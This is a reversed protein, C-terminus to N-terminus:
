ALAGPTDDLPPLDTVFEERLLGYVLDDHHTGNTYIMRRLRGELQFGLREHFRQSPRNFGYVRVTVKQYDLEQFFYRLVLQVAERAYGHRHHEAAIVLGYMFTGHRRDCTHTNITGVMQGARNEIAWRARDHAPENTAAHETWRKVAERSEPFNISSSHRASFDDVNWAAFTEWDGPEVARLKITTGQWISRM